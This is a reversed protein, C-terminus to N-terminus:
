SDEPCKGAKDRCAENYLSTLRMCFSKELYVKLAKKRGAVGMKDCSDSDTWLRAFNRAISSNWMSSALARLKGFRKGLVDNTCRFFPMVEHGNAALTRLMTEVAIEEGARVGYHNHVLCVRM